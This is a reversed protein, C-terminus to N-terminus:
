CPEKWRQFRQRGSVIDILLLAVTLYAKVKGEKFMKFACVFVSREGVGKTREKKGEGGGQLFYKLTSPTSPHSATSCCGWGPSKSTLLLAGVAKLQRQIWGRLHLWPITNVKNVSWSGLTPSWTCESMGMALKGRGFHKSVDSQFAAELRLCLCPLLYWCGQYKSRPSCGDERSRLITRFCCMTTTRLAACLIVSFSQKLFYAMAIASLVSTFRGRAIM